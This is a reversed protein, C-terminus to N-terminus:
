LMTRTPGMLLLQISPVRCILNADAVKPSPGDNKDVNRMQAYPAWKLLHLKLASAVNQPATDLRIHSSPMYHTRLAYTTLKSVIKKIQSCKKNNSLCLFKQLRHMQLWLPLWKVICQTSPDQTTQTSFKTKMWQVSPTPTDCSVTPMKRPQAFCEYDFLLFIEQHAHFSKGLNAKKKNARISCKETTQKKSALEWLMNRICPWLFLVEPQLKVQEKHWHFTGCPKERAKSLKWKPPGARLLLPQLLTDLPLKEFNVNFCQQWKRRKYVLGKM